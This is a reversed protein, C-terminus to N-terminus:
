QASVQAIHKALRETAERLSLGGMGPANDAELTLGDAMQRTFRKFATIITSHNDRGTARAIEPFSLTTLTRCLYAVMSRALVTRPHRGRGQLDSVEVRLAKCVEVVIVDGAIPRRPKGATLPAADNAETDKLGLARRVLLIGIRGGSPSLEPLLRHIADIQNLIGEIERVSGGFGGLTGIARETRDAILAVAAPELVMGRREALHRVLRDRLERDPTDIKVVIGAMFRSVLRDSLRKIESPHEDSAMAIRAGDLGVADLTHLLENQTADKGGLFHVDDICLLDVRRYAKRFADLRNAKIAGVFENTFAEATTYRVTAGPQRECFRNAIAHLLHTKGMGCRGHLFLPAAHQGGEAIGMAAVHALKNSKGVLFNAFTHRSSLTAPNARPKAGLTPRSVDTRQATDSTSAGFVGRDVRFTLETKPSQGPMECALRRLVAGFRREMIQSLFASAVAIEVRGDSINVRTQGDFYREVLDPGVEDALGRRLFAVADGGVVAVVAPTARLPKRDKGIAQETVM